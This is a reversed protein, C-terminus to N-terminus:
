NATIWQMPDVPEGRHRIEFYLGSEQAGGSAGVSAIPAGAPIRDGVLSFLSDNNGYVTLYDDGHDVIILNGYGRLWDSFVVEGSAVARVDEGEGARIFVGRWRAGGEERPAGFRRTLEGRVPSIMRGQLQAFSVGAPQIALSRHLDETDARPSRAQTRDESPAIRRMAERRAAQRNLVEILAALQQEDRRLSEAEDRQGQLQRALSALAVKRSAQVKQLEARQKRQTEALAVLEDRRQRESDILRTREDLDARLGEILALRARGLQELYHVDRALQNPDRALLFPAVDSGGRMYHRRLWEALEDRRVSIREEIQAQQRALQALAKEVAKQEGALKRIKRRAVSVAREAEALKAVADSHARESSAIAQEIERLRQQVGQLDARRQAVDEAEAALSAAPYMGTLAVLVVFFLCRCGYFNV